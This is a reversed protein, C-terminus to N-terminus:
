ARRLRHVDCFPPRELAGAHLRQRASARQHVFYRLHQRADSLKMAGRRRLDGTALGGAMASDQRRSRGTKMWVVLATGEESIMFVGDMGKARRLTDIAQVPTQAIPGGVNFSTNVAAEVGNRRGLAKM